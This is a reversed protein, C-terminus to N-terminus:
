RDTTALLQVAGSQGTIFVTYVHPTALPLPLSAAVTSTGAPQVTVTTSTPALQQYPAATSQPLASVIRTTNLFVDYATADSSANVVRLKAQNALPPLNNDILALLSASGTGVNSYGILSMDAAAALGQSQNYIYAGPNPTPQIQVNHAGSATIAYASATGYAAASVFTNGDILLDSTPVAPMAAVFRARAQQNDVFVSLGGTTVMVGNGLAASGASFLTLTVKANSTYPIDGTAYLVQKSGTPTVALTYTGTTAGIYSSAMSYPVSTIAATAQDITTGPPLAYLDVNGLGTGLNIVRFKFYGDSSDATGDISDHVSVSGPGGYFYYTYQGSSYVSIQDTFLLAGSTADAYTVTHLGPGIAMYPTAVHYDLSPLVTAGDVAIRVTGSFPSVHIFRMAADPPAGNNSSSSCGALFLAAIVAVFGFYLAKM